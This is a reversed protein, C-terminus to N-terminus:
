YGIFDDLFWNRSELCHWAFANDNKATSFDLKFYIKRDRDCLTNLWDLYEDISVLHKILNHYIEFYQDFLHLNDM